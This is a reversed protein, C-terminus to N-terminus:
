AKVERLITREKRKTPAKKQSKVKPKDEVVMPRNSLAMPTKTRVPAVPAAPITAKPREVYEQVDMQRQKLIQSRDTFDKGADTERTKPVWTRRPRTPQPNLFFGFTQKYDNNTQISLHWVGDPNNSDCNFSNFFVKAAGDNVMTVLTAKDQRVIEDLLDQAVNPLAVGFYYCDKHKKLLDMAKERLLTFNITDDTMLLRDTCGAASVMRGLNNLKEVLASYVRYQEDTVGKFYLGLRGGEPDKDVYQMQDLWNYERLVQAQKEYSSTFLNLFKMKVDDDLDSDDIDAILEEEKRAGNRSVSASDSERYTWDFGRLKLAFQEELNLPRGLARCRNIASLRNLEEETLHGLM